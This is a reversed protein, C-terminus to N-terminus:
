RYQKERLKRLGLKIRKKRAMIKRRKKLNAAIFYLLYLSVGLLFIYFVLDPVLIINIDSKDADFVLFYCLLIKLTWFCLFYLDSLKQESLVEKIM